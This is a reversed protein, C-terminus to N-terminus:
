AHAFFSRASRTNILVLVAISFILMVISTPDGQGIGGISILVWLVHLGITWIRVGRRGPAIRRALVVGIVGLLLPVGAVAGMEGPTFGAIALAALLLVAFGAMLYLLVRTARVARPAARATASARRHEM